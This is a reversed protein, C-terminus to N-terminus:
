KVDRFYVHNGEITAVKTFDSWAPVRKIDVTHFHLVNDPLSDIKGRLVKWALPLLKNFENNFQPEKYGNNFPSFAVPYKAAECHDKVGRYNHKVRHHVVEMVHTQGKVSEGRAEYFATSAMCLTLLSASLM